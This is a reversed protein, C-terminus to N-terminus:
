DRLPPNSRLDTPTKLPRPLVPPPIVHSCVSPDCFSFLSPALSKGCVPWCIGTPTNLTKAIPHPRTRPQRHSQRYFFPCPQGSCCLEFLLVPFLHISALPVPCLSVIARWQRSRKRGKRRRGRSGILVAVSIAQPCPPTMLWRELLQGALMDTAVVRAKSVTAPTLPPSPLPVTHHFPSSRLLSSRERAARREVRDTVAQRESVEARTRRGNREGNEFTEEPEVLYFSGIAM